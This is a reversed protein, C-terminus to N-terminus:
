TGSLSNSGATRDSFFNQDTYFSLYEKYLHTQLHMMHRLGVLGTNDPRAAFTPNSVFAGTLFYGEFLDEESERAAEGHEEMSPLPRGYKELAWVPGLPWAWAMLGVWGYILVHRPSLRALLNLSFFNRTICVIVM